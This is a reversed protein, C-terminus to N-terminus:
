WVCLVHQSVDSMDDYFLYRLTRYYRYRVTSCATSRDTRIDTTTGTRVHLQQFEVLLKSSYPFGANCFVYFLYSIRLVLLMLVISGYFIINHWCEVGDSHDGWIVHRLSVVSWPFQQEMNNTKDQKWKESQLMSAVVVSFCCFCAKTVPCEPVEMDSSKSIQAEEGM